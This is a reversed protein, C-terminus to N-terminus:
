VPNSSGAKLQKYFSYSCRWFYLNILAFIFYITSTVVLARSKMGECVRKIHDEESDTTPLIQTEEHVPLQQMEQCDTDGTIQQYGVIVLVGYIVGLLTLIDVAVLHAMVAIRNHRIAGFLLFGYVVCCIIGAIVNWTDILHDWDDNRSDQVSLHVGYVFMSLGGLLGIVSITINGIRLPICCCIKTFTKM